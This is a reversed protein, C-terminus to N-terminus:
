LMRDREVLLEQVLHALGVNWVPYSVTFEAGHVDLPCSQRCIMLTGCVSLSNICHM